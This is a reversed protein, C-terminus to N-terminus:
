GKERSVTHAADAKAQASQTETCRRTVKRRGERRGEGRENNIEKKKKRTRGGKSKKRKDLANFIKLKSFTLAHLMSRVEGSQKLCQSCM